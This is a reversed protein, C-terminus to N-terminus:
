GHQSRPNEPARERVLRNKESLVQALLTSAQMAYLEALRPHFGYDVLRQLAIHFKTMDLATCIDYQFSRDANIDFPERTFGEREQDTHEASGIFPFYLQKNAM